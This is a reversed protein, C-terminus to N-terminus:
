LDGNFARQLFSGKLEKLAELKRAEIAELDAVVTALRDMEHLVEAQVAPDPRPLVLEALTGQNLSKISIGNGGEIMKRRTAPSRLFQCVYLPLVDSQHLRTRITFGSHCTPESQEGALISRGILEPNGNSRVSLIDGEALFDIDSLNDELTISALGESPVRLHNQFDGVGVLRVSRGKSQKTYNIGNRFSAIDGLRVLPAAASLRDFVQQHHTSLVSRAKNLKQEANAYALAIAEFAEELIASIREQESKSPHRFPVLKLKAASLEKFTAGTGMSELLPVNAMLFYYAFKTSIGDVPVLGRCGQNFAMPVENIVLHGIPARTSVIISGPPVLEAGLRLGEDTLTRRSESLYPSPLDSMEAPTIWRHEGGWNTAVGTKPTGGNVVRFADGVTRLVWDKKM